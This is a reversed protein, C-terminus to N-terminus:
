VHKNIKKPLHKLEKTSKFITEERGNYKRILQQKNNENNEWM